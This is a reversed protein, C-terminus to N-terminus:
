DNEEQFSRCRAATLSGHRKQERYHRDYSHGGYIGM